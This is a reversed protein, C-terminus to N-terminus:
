FRVEWHVAAGRGLMTPSFSVTSTRRRERLQKFRIRAIAATIAGGVLVGLGTFVVIPGSRAISIMRHRTDDDVPLTGGNDEALEDLRREPRVGYLLIVGSLAIAGGLVAIAGGALTVRGATRIKRNLARPDQEVGTGTGQGQGERVWDPQPAAAALDPHLVDAPTADAGSEADGFAPEVDAVPAAGALSPTVLIAALAAGMSREFKLVHRAMM